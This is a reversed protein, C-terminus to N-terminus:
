RFRRQPGADLHHLRRYTWPPVPDAEAWLGRRQQRATSELVEFIKSRSHARYWWALGARLLEEGLDRGDPLTVDAVLRDYRDRDRVRVSISRDLALESAFARARQGYAQHLEPADIGAIRIRISEGNARAALTDGDGVAVVRATFAAPPQASVPVCFLLVLVLRAM